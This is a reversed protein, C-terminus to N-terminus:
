PRPPPLVLVQDKESSAVWNQGLAHSGRSGPNPLMQMWEYPYSAFQCHM